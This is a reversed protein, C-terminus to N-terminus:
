LTNIKKSDNILRIEFIKSQMIKSENVYEALEQLMSKRKIKEENLKNLLVLKNENDKASLLMRKHLAMSVDIGAVKKDIELIRNAISWKNRKEYICWTVANKLSSVFHVQDGYIKSVEYLNQEKKTVRYKNFLDYSGDENQFIALEGVASKYEQEFFSNVRDIISNHMM